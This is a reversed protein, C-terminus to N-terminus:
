RLGLICRFRAGPGQPLGSDKQIPIHRGDNGATKSLLYGM